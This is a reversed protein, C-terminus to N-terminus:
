IQAVSAGQYNSCSGTSVPRRLGRCMNSSMSSDSRRATFDPPTVSKQCARLKAAQARPKAIIGAPETELRIGEPSFVCGFRAQLAQWSLQNEPASARSGFHWLVDEMAARAHACHIGICISSNSSPTALLAGNMLASLPVHGVLLNVLGPALDARGLLQRSLRMLERVTSPSSIGDCLRDVLTILEPFAKVELVKQQWSVREKLFAGDLREALISEEFELMKLAITKATMAGGILQHWQDRHGSEYWGGAVSEAVCLAEEAKFLKQVAAGLGSAAVM